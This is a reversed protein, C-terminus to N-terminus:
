RRPGVPSSAEGDADRPALRSAVVFYLVAGVVGSGLCFWHMAQVSMLGLLGNARTLPWFPEVDAHMIGDLLVHSFTGIFASVLAVPWRIPVFRRCGILRLGLESLYKGSLASAVGLLSAGIWTHTFGHLHGEGTLIVVGNGTFEAFCARADPVRFYVAGGVQCDGGHETLFLTQGAQAATLRPVDARDVARQRASEFGPFGPRCVVM